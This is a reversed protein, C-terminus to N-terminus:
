VDKPDLQGHLIRNTEMHATIFIRIVDQIRVRRPRGERRLEEAMRMAEYKLYNHQEPSLALDIYHSLITERAEGAEVKVHSRRPM